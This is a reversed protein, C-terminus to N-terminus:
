NSQVIRVAESLNEVEADPTFGSIEKQNKAYFGRRVWVAFIKPFMKKAAFLITLKDDVFFTKTEKNYKRLVNKLADLKNSVIHVNEKGFYKDIGDEKLKTKQFDLDGESFIGLVAIKKLDELARIVEKYIKPKSLNSEKFFDTDFLTYDIDLLVIPKTFQM